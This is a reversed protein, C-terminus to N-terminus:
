VTVLSDETLTFNASKEGFFKSHPHKSHCEGQCVEFTFKYSGPRWITPMQGQQTPQSDKVQLNVKLAQPGAPLGDPLLFTQGINANVPGDIGIGFEGVGSPHTVNLNVILAISDGKKISAPDAQASVFTVAASDDGVPCSKVLECFFIPDLDTRRLVKMFENIGVISCVADCAGQAGKNQLHGCLKSCSGLVGYNLVINVLQSLSQSATNVCQKCLPGGATAEAAVPVVPSSFATEAAASASLTLFIAKSLSMKGTTRHLSISHLLHLTLLKLL